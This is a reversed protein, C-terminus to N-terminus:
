QLQPIKPLEYHVRRRAVELDRHETLPYLTRLRGEVTREIPEALRYWTEGTDVVLGATWGEKRRSSIIVLDASPLGAAKGSVARDPIEPGELDHRRREAREARRKTALATVAADAGTLLPDGLPDDVVNSIARAAGSVALYLSIWGVPTFFLFGFPAFANLFVGTSSSVEPGRHALQEEALRLTASNLTSAQLAAYRIFGIVGLMGGAMFTLIGSLTASSDVPVRHELAPWRRSPLFAAIM